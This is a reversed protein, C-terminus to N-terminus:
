TASAAAREQLARWMVKNTAPRPLTDVLQVIHPSKYAAMDQNGWDIIAQGSIKSRQAEKFSNPDVVM